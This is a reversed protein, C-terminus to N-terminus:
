KPLFNNLKDLVDDFDLPKGIHGNMGAEMCKEVDERFVNATMAIIPVRGRLNGNSIQTEGGTFGAKTGREAEIARIRRTAEYGDMEPMQVDMFILDYKDQAESFKSVAQAGNEACDIKLLTPELLTQMIERNIEVDEALLIRRGAFLGAIDPKEKDLKADPSGGTHDGKKAQITFTFVSGKGPESKVFINGGMLEVISKSIALGLGTGGYQRTTDAEAQQFSNFLNKQQEASIGIGTDSVAIEIICVGNEEGLFRAELSISGGERTFKVANVLLNIIVQALRQDDTILIQPIKNDIQLTFKQKKEDLRFNIVDAARRIVKEFTFEAPSLEFKGAEIKSMDLIDNIVGLLHTSADEIKAFCYDKREIDSASKGIMIMGIIANLPTRIEHSMNALFVSKARASAEAEAQQKAMEELKTIDQVLALQGITVGKADKLIEVDAQYSLNEKSFYTRNLGRRARLISCEGTNCNGFGWYNCHRGIVDKRKEGLKQEIASNIFTWKMDTDTVSIFFPIADLISEYWYALKEFKKKERDIVATDEYVVEVHGVIEGNENHLYSVLVHYDGGFQQFYTEKYGNRLRTIGCNPTNCINAKWSSCKLGMIDERKVGLFQEVAKNVFTWEMDKNTVTIPFSVSDLISELWYVKKKHVSREAELTEALRAYKQWILLWAAAFIIVLAGLFGVLM